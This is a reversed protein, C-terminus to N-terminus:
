SGPTLGPRKLAARRVAVIPVTSFTLREAVNTKALGSAVAGRSVMAVDGVPWVTKPRAITEL